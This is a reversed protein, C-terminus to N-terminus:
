AMVVVQMMFFFSRKSATVWGTNLLIRGEHYKEYPQLSLYIRIRFTLNEGLVHKWLELYSPASSSLFLYNKNIRCLFM